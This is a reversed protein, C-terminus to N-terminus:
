ITIRITEDMVVISDAIQILEYLHLQLPSYLARVGELKQLRGIYM